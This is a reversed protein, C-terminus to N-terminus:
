LATKERRFHGQIAEKEAPKKRNEPYERRDANWKKSVIPASSEVGGVNVYSRQVIANIAITSPLKVLWESQKSGREVFGLERLRDRTKRAANESVHLIAALGMANINAVHSGDTQKVAVDCFACLAIRLSPDLNMRLALPLLAAAMDANMARRQTTPIAAPNM